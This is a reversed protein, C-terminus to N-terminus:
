SIRRLAPASVAIHGKGQADLRAFTAEAQAGLDSLDSRLRHLDNKECYAALDTLVEIMWFHRM